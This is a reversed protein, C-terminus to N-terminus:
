IFYSMEGGRIPMIEVTHDDLLVAVTGSDVPPPGCRLLSKGSAVAVCLHTFHNGFVLYTRPDSVLWLLPDVDFSCIMNMWIGMSDTPLYGVDNTFSTHDLHLGRSCCTLFVVWYLLGCFRPDLLLTHAVVVVTTEVMKKRCMPHPIQLSGTDLVYCLAVLLVVSRSRVHIMIQQEFVSSLWHKRGPVEPPDGSPLLSPMLARNGQQINVIALTIMLWSLTIDEHVWVESTLEKMHTFKLGVSWVVKPQM